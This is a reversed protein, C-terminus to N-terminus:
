QIGNTWYTCSAPENLFPKISMKPEIHDTRQLEALTPLLFSKEGAAKFLTFNVLFNEGFHVSKLHVPRVHMDSLNVLHPGSFDSSPM